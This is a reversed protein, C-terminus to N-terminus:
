GVLLAATYLSTHTVYTKSTLLSHSTTDRIIDLISQSDEDFELLSGEKEQWLGFVCLSEILRTGLGGVRGQLVVFQLLQSAPLVLVSAVSMVIAKPGSSTPLQTHSITILAIYMFSMIMGAAM